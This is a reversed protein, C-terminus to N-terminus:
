FVVSRVISVCTVSLMKGLNENPSCLIKEHRHAMINLYLGSMNLVKHFLTLIKSTLLSLFHSQAVYIISHTRTKLSAIQLYSVLQILIFNHSM